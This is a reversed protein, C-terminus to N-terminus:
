ELCCRMAYWGGENKYHSARQAFQIMLQCLYDYDDGMDANAQPPQPILSNSLYYLYLNNNHRKKQMM